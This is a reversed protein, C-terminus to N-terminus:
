RRRIIPESPVRPKMELTIKLVRGIGFFVVRAQIWKGSMGLAMSGTGSRTAAPAVATSSIPAGASITAEQFMVPAGSCQFSSSGVVAARRTSNPPSSSSDSSWCSSRAMSSSPSRSSIRSTSNLRSSSIMSILQRTRSPSWPRTPLIRRGPVASITSSTQTGGARIASPASSSRARSASCSNRFPTAPWAEAPLRWKM